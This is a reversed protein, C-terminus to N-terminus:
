KKQEPKKATGLKKRAPKAPLNKVANEFAKEDASAEAEAPPQAAAGTPRWLWGAPHTPPTYGVTEGVKRNMM